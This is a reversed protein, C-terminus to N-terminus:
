QQLEPLCASMSDYYVPGLQFALRIPQHTKQSAAAYVEVRRLRLAQQRMKCHPLPVKLSLSACSDSTCAASAALQPSAGGRLHVAAAIAGQHESFLRQVHYSVIGFARRTWVCVLANVEWCLSCIVPRCFPQM